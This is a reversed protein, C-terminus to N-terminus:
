LPRMIFNAITPDRLIPLMSSAGYIESFTVSITDPPALPTSAKACVNASFRPKSKVSNKGRYSRYPRAAGNFRFSCIAAYASAAKTNQSPFDLPVAYVIFHKSFRPFGIRTTRTQIHHFFIVSYFIAFAQASCQEACAQKKTKM